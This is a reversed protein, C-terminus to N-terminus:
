CKTAEQWTPVSLSVFLSVCLRVNYNIFQDPRPRTLHFCINLSLVHCMITFYQTQACSVCYHFISASCMVCLLSINLSLVYCMLTFYKTLVPVVLMYPVINPEDFNSWIPNFAVHTQFYNPQLTKQPLKKGKRKNHM